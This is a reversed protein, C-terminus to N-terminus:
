SAGFFDGWCGLREGEATTERSPGSKIPSKLFAKLLLAADLALSFTDMFPVIGEECGDWPLGPGGGVGGGTDLFGREGGVTLLFCEGV